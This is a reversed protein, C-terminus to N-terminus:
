FVQHLQHSIFGSHLLAALAGASIAIGYPVASAGGQAQAMWSEAPPNEFPKYKRMLLSLVGLVGGALTMFFLFVLLHPLGVWLALAAGYKADGAGLMGACFMAFTVALFIGLAALHEWWRGFDDPSVAFAAAFAVLVFLVHTNPIRMRRIDSVSACLMVAVVAATLFAVFM